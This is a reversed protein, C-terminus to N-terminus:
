YAISRGLKGVAQKYKESATLPREEEEPQQQAAKAAAEEDARDQLVQQMPIREYPADLLPNLMPEVQQTVKQGYAKVKKKTLSVSDLPVCRTALRIFQRMEFVSRSLELQVQLVDKSLAAAMDKNKELKVASQQIRKNLKNLTMCISYSHKAKCEGKLSRLQNAFYDDNIKAPFDMFEWLDNIEDDVLNSVKLKDQLPKQIKNIDTEMKAKLKEDALAAEFEEREMQGDTNTDIMYFIDKLSEIEEATEAAKISAQLEEDEETRALANNVIIAIILNDLVLCAVAVYVLFFICIIPRDAQLPRSLGSWSDLTMVQFLTFMASPVDLFHGDIIFQQEDTYPLDNNKVMLSVFFIAFMYLVVMLILSVWLILRASDMIGSVLNWPISFGEITRVSKLLRVLRLVRMLQAVRLGGGGEYGFLPGLFYSPLIGTFFIIASDMANGFNYFWIWGGALVRVVVEVTFAATFMEECLRLLPNDAAPTNQASTQIGTLGANAATWGFMFFEFIVSETLRVAWPFRHVFNPHLRRQKEKFVMDDLKDIRFTKYFWEYIVNNKKARLAEELMAETSMHDAGAMVSSKIKPNANADQAQHMKGRARLRRAEEMSIQGRDVMDQIQGADEEMRQFEQDIAVDEMRERAAIKEAVMTEVQGSAVARADESGKRAM